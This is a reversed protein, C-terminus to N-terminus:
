EGAFGLMEGWEEDQRVVQRRSRAAKREAQAQARALILRNFGLKDAKALWRTPLPHFGRLYHAVVEDELSGIALAEGPDGQRGARGFLQRDVRKSTNPEVAIVLLGGLEHVGPGLKIDTGRGAMNTAITVAGKQGGKTVIEAEKAHYRANLVDHPIGEAELLRSLSESEEVSRTGILVPRGQAHAAKTWALVQKVKAQKTPTFTWPHDKRLNVKHRPIKVSLMGYVQWLEHRIEWCTGSMASRRQYGRFFNQFSLRAMTSKLTNMDLQEKAEVAQHLGDRWTREPMPRGTATDVIVVKGDDVVYEKDKYFFYKASLAQLALEEAARRSKWWGGWQNGAAELAAKGHRTLRADKHVRDLTFEKKETWGDVLTAAERIGQERRRDGSDSSLILPTVAEDVLLSDAEDVIAWVRPPPAPLSGVQHRLVDAAIQGQTGYVIPLGYATMREAPTTDQVIWRASLGCRKFLPMAWKADREALYDNSTMVHVSRCAWGAVCAALAAVLTKGEGTALEVCHNRLLGLASALQVPYPALGLTRRAAEAVAALAQETNEQTLKGRAIPERVRALEANLAPGDWEAMAKAQAHARHAIALLNRNGLVAQELRGRLAWGLADLGRPLPRLPRRPLHTTPEDAHAAPVQPAVPAQTQRGLQQAEEKQSLTVNIM